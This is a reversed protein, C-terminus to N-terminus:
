QDAGRDFRRLFKGRMQDGIFFLRPNAARFNKDRRGDGCADEEARTNDCLGVGCVEGFTVCFKL